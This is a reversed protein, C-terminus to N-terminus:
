QGVPEPQTATVPRLLTEIAGGGALIKKTLYFDAYLISTSGRNSTFGQGDGLRVSISEGREITGWPRRTSPEHPRTAQPAIKTLPLISFGSIGRLFWLIYKFIETVM